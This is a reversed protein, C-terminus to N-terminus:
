IFGGVDLTDFLQALGEGGRPRRRGPAQTLATLEQAGYLRLHRCFFRVYRQGVFPQALGLTFVLLLINGLQFGFLARKRVPFDFSVRGFRTNGATYAFARVFFHLFGILSMVLYVAYFVAVGAVIAGAAGKVAAEGHPIGGAILFFALFGLGAALVLGLISCAYAVLFPGMLKAGRGEFHFDVDGFGTNNTKYRWLGVYRWPMALGLTLPLLLGYGIARFAYAAASGEVGGRIGHWLTRSVQYRRSGYQSLVVIFFLLAFQVVTVIGVWAKPAGLQELLFSWGFILPFLVLALLFRRFLEGGTGDYEFREGLLSTHSWFYRRIRTKGWFRSYIGLTVIGLLLVKLWLVFLEGTRGDYLLQTETPASAAPGIAAPADITITM